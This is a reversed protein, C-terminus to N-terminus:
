LRTPIAEGPVVTGQYGHGAAGSDEQCSWVNMRMKGGKLARLATKGILSHELHLDSILHTLSDKIRCLRSTSLGSITLM